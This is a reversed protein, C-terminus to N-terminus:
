SDKSCSVRIVESTFESGCISCMVLYSCAFACAREPPVPCGGCSSPSRFVEVGPGLSPHGGSGGAQPATAAGLLDLGPVRCAATGIGEVEAAQCTEGSGVAGACPTIIRPPEAPTHPPGLARRAPREPPSRSARERM